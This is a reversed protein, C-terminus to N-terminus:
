PKHRRAAGPLVALRKFLRGPSLCPSPTLAFEGPWTSRVLRAIVEINAKYESPDIRQFRCAPIDASRLLRGIRMRSLNMEAHLRRLTRDSLNQRKRHFFVTSNFGYVRDSQVFLSKPYLIGLYIRNTKM